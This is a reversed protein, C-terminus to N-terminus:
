LRLKRGRRGDARAVRMGAHARTELTRRLCGADIGLADCVNEFALFRSRDGSMFWHQAERFLPGGSGGLSPHYRLFAHMADGLVAALLRKEGSLAGAVDVERLDTVPRAGMPEFERDQM